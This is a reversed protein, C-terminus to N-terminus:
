TSAQIRKAIAAQDTRDSNLSSQGPFKLPKSKLSSDFVVREATIYPTGGYWLHRAILQKL